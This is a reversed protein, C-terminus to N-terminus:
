CCLLGTSAVYAKLGNLGARESASLSVSVQFPAFSAGIGKAELGRTKPQCGAAWPPIRSQAPLSIIEVPFLWVHPQCSADWSLARAVVSM